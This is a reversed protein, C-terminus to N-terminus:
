QLLLRSLVPMPLAGERLALDHFRALGGKSGSKSEWESRLHLWAQWGSFYTPLQCSTLQARQVKAVAEQREQFTQNIMLDLAQQETMGQTQMKIDLIANAVVRLMQKNFTLKMEPSSDFGQDIM